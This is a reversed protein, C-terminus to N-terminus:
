TGWGRRVEIMAMIVLIAASAVAHQCGNGFFALGRALPRGFWLFLFLRMAIIAVIIWLLTLMKSRRLPLTSAVATHLAVHGKGLLSRQGSVLLSVMVPPLQTQWWIPLMSALHTAFVKSTTM